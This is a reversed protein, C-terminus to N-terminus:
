VKHVKHRRFCLGQASGDIKVM